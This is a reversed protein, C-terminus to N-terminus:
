EASTADEVRFPQHWHSWPSWAAEAASRARLRCTYSGPALREGMNDFRGNSADVRVRITDSALTTSYWRVNGAEDGIQLEWAQCADARRILEPEPPAVVPGIPATSVVFDDLWRHGETTARQKDRYAEFFIANIGHEEYTGRLDLDGREADLRGDIWIAAYGDNEGPTNLRLHSEVCIWRGTESSASIPQRGRAPRSWDFHDFDNYVTARPRGDVVSSIPQLVLVDDSSTIQLLFAQSWNHDYLGSATTFKGPRESWGDQQMVYIRWYVETFQEDAHVPRGVPCDGFALRWAGVGHRGSPYHLQAAAGGDGLRQRVSRTMGPSGPEGDFYPGDRERDFDDYWIVAPDDGHPQRPAPILNAIRPPRSIPAAQQPRARGASGGAVILESTGSAVETYRVRGEEVRLYTASDRHGLVFRTGLVEVLADATALSLEDGPQQEAITAHVEGTELHAHKGPRDLLLLRTSAQLLLESGDADRLRCSGDEGLMIRDGSHLAFGATADLGHGDREIVTDGESAVVALRWSGRGDPAFRWWSLGLVLVAAVAALVALHRRRHPTRLRRRPRRPGTIATPTALRDDRVLERLADHNRALQTFRRLTADDARLRRDLDAVQEATASGDLYDDILRDLADSM